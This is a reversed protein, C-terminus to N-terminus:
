RRSFAIRIVILHCIKEIQAFGMYIVINRNVMNKLHDAVSESDHFHVQFDIHIDASLQLLDSFIEFRTHRGIIDGASAFIQASTQGRSIQSIIKDIRGTQNEEILLASIQRLLRLLSQGLLQCLM